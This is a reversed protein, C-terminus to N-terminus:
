FEVRVSASVGEPGVVPEVRVMTGKKRKRHRSAGSDREVSTSGDDSIFVKYVLLGSTVATAAIAVSGLVYLATQYKEGKNCVDRLEGAGEPNTTLQEVANCTNQIRDNDVNDEAVDLANGLMPNRSLIADKEKELDEKEFYSYVWAGGSLAAVTATGAFAYKWASGGAGQKSLSVDLQESKGAAVSVQRAYREHGATDIALSHSGASVDRVVATGASLSTVVEGDLYVTGKDANKVRVVIQGLEPEGTLRRYLVSAHLSLQDATREDFPINRSSTKEISAGQTDLMKLTVFYGNGRREIKGYVLKDAKLERGIEAMCSHAEDSCNSLLKMELLDKGSNPALQYKGSRRQAQERIRDTVQKARLTTSATMSGDDIVELGLIAIKPKAEAAAATSTVLLAVLVTLVRRSM